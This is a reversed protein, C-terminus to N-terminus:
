ALVGHRSMQMEAEDYVDDQFWYAYRVPDATQLAKHQGIAASWICSDARRPTVPGDRFFGTSRIAGEPSLLVYWSRNDGKEDHHLVRWGAWESYIKM